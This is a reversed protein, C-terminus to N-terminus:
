LRNSIFAALANNTTVVFTRRGKVEMMSVVFVRIPNFHSAPCKPTDDFFKVFAVQQASVTMSFFM